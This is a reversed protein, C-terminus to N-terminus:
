GAGAPAPGGGGPGALRGADREGRWYAVFRRFVSPYGCVRAFDELVEDPCTGEISVRAARKIKALHELIERRALLRKYTVQGIPSKPRYDPIDTLIELHDEPEDFTPDILRQDSAIVRFLQEKDFVHDHPHHAELCPEVIAKNRLREPVFDLKRRNCADCSPLLNEWAYALLPFHEKPLFHDVQLHDNGVLLGCYACESDSMELLARRVAGVGHGDKALDNWLPRIAGSPYRLDAYRSRHAVEAEATDTALCAPAPGRSLRRM